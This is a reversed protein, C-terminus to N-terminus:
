QGWLWSRDWSDHCLTARGPPLQDCLRTAFSEDLGPPRLTIIWEVAAHKAPEDRILDLAMMARTLDGEAAASASKDVLCWQVEKRILMEGTLRGECPTTSCGWLLFLSISLYLRLVM